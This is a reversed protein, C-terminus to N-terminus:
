KNFLKQLMGGEPLKDLELVSKEKAENYASAWSNQAMDILINVEQKSMEQKYERGLAFAQSYQANNNGPNLYGARMWPMESIAPQNEVVDPVILSPDNKNKEWMRKMVAQVDGTATGDTVLGKKGLMQTTYFMAAGFLYLSTWSNGQDDIMAIRMWNNQEGPVLKVNPTDVSVSGAPVLMEGQPGVVTKLPLLVSFNGQSIEIIPFGTRRVAADLAKFAALKEFYESLKYISAYINM